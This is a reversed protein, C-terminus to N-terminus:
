SRRVRKVCGDSTRQSMGKPVIAMSWTMRRPRTRSSIPCSAARRSRRTSTPLMASSAVSIARKDTVAEDILRLATDLDPAVVDLFGIARRKEAREPDIDVVLIAAGAMRGALPQAGGMGGLGATLIFRGALSGGFRREAIRMFIEYTGPHRGALRYIALCRRDTRGLLDAKKELDYFIQGQGM